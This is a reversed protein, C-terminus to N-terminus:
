CLGHLIVEWYNHVCVQILLQWIQQNLDQWILLCQFNNSLQETAQSYQYCADWHMDLRCTDVNVRPRKCVVAIHVIYSCLFFGFSGACKTERNTTEESLCFVSHPCLPQIGRESRSTIGAFSGRSSGTSVARWNLPNGITIISRQWTSLDKNPEPRLSMTWKGPM